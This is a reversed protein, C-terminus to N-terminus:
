IELIVKIKNFVLAKFEDFTIGETIKEYWLQASPSCVLTADMETLSYYKYTSNSYYSLDNSCKPIKLSKTYCLDMCLNGIIEGREM